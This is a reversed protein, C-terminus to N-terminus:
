ERIVKIDKAAPKQMKLEQKARTEVRVQNLRTSQELRLRAWDANLDDREQELKRVEGFLARSHHRNGVVMLALGIVLFYLVLLGAISSRM